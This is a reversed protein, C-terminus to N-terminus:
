PLSREEGTADFNSLGEVTSVSACHSGHLTVNPGQGNSGEISSYRECMASCQSHVKRTLFRFAFATESMNPHKRRSPPIRTITNPISSLSLLDPDSPSECRQVIAQAPTPRPARIRPISKPKHPLSCWSCLSPPYINLEPCTRSNRAPKKMPTENTPTAKM